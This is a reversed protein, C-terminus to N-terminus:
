FEGEEYVTGYEMGSQLLQSMDQFLVDTPPIFVSNDVSLWPKCEYRVEKDMSVPENTEVGDQSFQSVDVKMGYAEGEIETWAYMMSGDLIMSSLVQGTLDPSPVLFDGRIKGDSTFFTGEIPEAGGDPTFSIACEVNEGRLRLTELTGTGSFESPENAAIGNQSLAESQTAADTMQKDESSVSLLSWYAFGVIVALVGLIYAYKM